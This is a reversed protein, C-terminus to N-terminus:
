ECTLDLQHGWEAGFDIGIDRLGNLMAREAHDIPNLGEDERKGKPVGAAERYQGMAWKISNVARDLDEPSILMQKHIASYKM